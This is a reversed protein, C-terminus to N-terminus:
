FWPSTPNGPKLRLIPLEPKTIQADFDGRRNRPKPRLVLYAETQRNRWLVL